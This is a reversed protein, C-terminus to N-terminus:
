RLNASELALLYKKLELGGGYGVMSGDAGIVRHCPIIIAIPNKNNAMGVARCAAPSGISGAIQKYSRTEGYPILILANWVKQQFATGQPSLPLDFSKRKGAFYEKLEAAAKLLLETEGEVSEASLEEGPLLLHTISGNEEAICIRGIATELDLHKNM